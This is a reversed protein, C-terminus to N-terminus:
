CGAADLRERLEANEKKLKVLYHGVLYFYYPLMGMGIIYGTGSDWISTIMALVTFVGCAVTPMWPRIKERKDETNM